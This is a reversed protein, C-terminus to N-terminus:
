SALEYGRYPYPTIEKPKDWMCDQQPVYPNHCCSTWNGKDSWSSLNCISTDPRNKMLDDVHTKAVLSLSASLSLSKEGYENLLTNIKDFLQKEVPSICFGDPITNQSLVKNTGLGLFAFVLCAYSLNRIILKTKSFPANLM